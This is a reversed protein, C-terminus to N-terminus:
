SDKNNSRKEESNAVVYLWWLCYCWRWRCPLPVMERGVGWLVPSSRIMFGELPTFSRCRVTYWYAGCSVAIYFMGSSGCEHSLQLGCSSYGWLWQESFASFTPLPKKYWMGLVWWILLTVAVSCLMIHKVGPHILHTVTCVFGCYLPM